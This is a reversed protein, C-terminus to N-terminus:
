VEKALYKVVHEYGNQAALFLPTQGRANQANFYARHCILEKVMSLNGIRSAAHLPFEQVFNQLFHVSLVIQDYQYVTSYQCRIRHTKRSCYSHMKSLIQMYHFYM